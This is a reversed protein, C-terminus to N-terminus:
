CSPFSAASYSFFRKTFKNINGKKWTSCEWTSLFHLWKSDFRAARRRQYLNVIPFMRNWILEDYWKVTWGLLSWYIIDWQLIALYRTVFITLERTNDQHQVLNESSSNVSIYCLWYPSNRNQSQSKFILMYITM